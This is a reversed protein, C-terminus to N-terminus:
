IALMTFTCALRCKFCTSLQAAAQRGHEGTLLCCPCVLHQNSKEMLCCFMPPWISTLTAFKDSPRVDQHDSCLSTVRSWDRAAM